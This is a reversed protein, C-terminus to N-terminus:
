DGGKRLEHVMLWHKSLMKKYRWGTPLQLRVKAQQAVELRYISNNLFFEFEVWDAGTKGIKLIGPGGMGFIAGAELADEISDDRGLLYVHLGEDYPSDDTLWILASGDGLEFQAELIAGEVEVNIAQGNRELVARQNERSSNVLSYRTMPRM